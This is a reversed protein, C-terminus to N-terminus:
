ADELRSVLDTRQGPPQMPLGYLVMRAMHDILAEQHVRVRGRPLYWTEFMVVGSILSMILRDSLELNPPTPWRSSEAEGWSRMEAFVEDFLRQMEARDRPRLSGDASVLGVLVDRHVTLHKYLERILEKVFDILEDENWPRQFTAQWVTRFEALFDRFPGLMSARFLAGKTKFHRYFVSPSVGAEAVLDEVTANTFGKAKFVRPANALLLARVETPRRRAQKPTDPGERKADTGEGLVGDKPALPGDASPATRPRQPYRGEQRRPTKASSVCWAYRNM